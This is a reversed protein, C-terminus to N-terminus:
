FSSLTQLAKVGAIETQILYGVALVVNCISWYPEREWLEVALVAIAMATSLFVSGRMALMSRRGVFFGVCLYVLGTILGIVYLPMIDNPTDRAWRYSVGLLLFSGFLLHLWYNMQITNSAETLVDVRVGNRTVELENHQLGVELVSGDPLDLKQGALLEEADPTAIIEGDLKITFRTASIPGYTERHIPTRWQIALRKPEGVTFRYKKRKKGM